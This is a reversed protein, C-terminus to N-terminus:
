IGKRDPVGAVNFVRVIENVFDFTHEDRRLREEESHIDIAEVSVDVDGASHAGDM